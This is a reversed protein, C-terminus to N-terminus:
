SSGSRATAASPPPSSSPGISRRATPAVVDTVLGMDAAEDADVTRATLLLEFARGAGVIRPLTYSIGIDCGGIGVKIFQSCFRAEAAAVRM